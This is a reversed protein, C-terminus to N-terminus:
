WASHRAARPPAVTTMPNGSFTGTVNVSPRRAPRENALIPLTVDILDARGCVAGVPLGGGLIKGLTVLDGTVGYYGSGSRSGVRFGTIVEDM